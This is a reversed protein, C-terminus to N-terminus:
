INMSVTTVQATQLSPVQVLSAKAIALSDFADAPSCAYKNCASCCIDTTLKSPAIGVTDLIGSCSQACCAEFPHSVSQFNQLKWTGSFDDANCDGDSSPILVTASSNMTISDNAVNNVDFSNLMNSTVESSLPFPLGLDALVAESRMKAIDNEAISAEEVTEGITVRPLRSDAHKAQIKGFVYGYLAEVAM